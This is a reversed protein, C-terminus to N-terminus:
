DCGIFEVDDVWIDFSADPQSVQWQLAFLKAPKLAHPRPSGWGPQQKLKRWTFVYQQWIESLMIDAGFDNFCARCVGGADHTSVDPIKFRVKAYSGAGRKAWFAVGKYKSADYLGMPDVFNLGLAGFVDKATGVRGKANAAFKSGNVGGKSMAFASGQEGPEPWVTSGSGTSDIFTYWYGGRGGAPKSQNNGDEGDDILGEDGCTNYTEPGESVAPSNGVCATALMAFTLLLPEGWGLIARSRPHRTKVTIGCSAGRPHTHGHATTGPQM